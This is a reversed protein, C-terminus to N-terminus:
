TMFLGGTGNGLAYLCIKGIGPYVCNIEHAPICGEDIGKHFAAIQLHQRQHGIEVLEHVTKRIPVPLAAKDLQQHRLGHGAGDLAQDSFVPRIHNDASMGKRCLRHGM